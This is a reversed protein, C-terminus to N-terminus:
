AFGGGARRNRGGVRCTAHEAPRQAWTARSQASRTTSELRHIDQAHRQFEPHEARDLDDVVPDRRPDARRRLPRQERQEQLMGALDHRRVPDDVHEPRPVWRLGASLEPEVDRLQPPDEFRRPRLIGRAPHQPRARGAIEKPDIQILKICRAELVECAGRPRQELVLGGARALHQSRRKGEPPPLWELVDEVLVSEGGLHRAQVLETECRDPVPELGIEREPPGAVQDGLELGEDRFMRVVLVEKGLEHEGVVARSPLRIRESAVARRPAREDLLKSDLGALPQLLEVPADETVVPSQGARVRERNACDRPPLLSLDDGNDESVEEVGPGLGLRDIRLLNAGEERRVM